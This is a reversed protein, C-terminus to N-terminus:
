QQDSRPRKVVPESLARAPEWGANLRARFRDGVGSIEGWEKVSHSVGDITVMWTASRRWVRSPGIPESFAREASWGYVTIRLLTPRYELGLLECWEALAKTEGRYTVLASSRRNRAQEKVTAWRCNEPSYPGDNDIRDLTTSAPRDGMDAHFAEFSNWRSCITIGRGGYFKYNPTECDCGDEACGYQKDHAHIDHGCWKCKNPTLKCCRGFTM